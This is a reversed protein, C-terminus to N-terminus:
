TESIHTPPPGRQTGGWGENELVCGQILLHELLPLGRPKLHGMHNQEFRLIKREHGM